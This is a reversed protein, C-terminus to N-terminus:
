YSFPVNLRAGPAPFFLREENISPAGDTAMNQNPITRHIVSPSLRTRDAQPVRPAEMERNPVPAAELRHEMDVSARGGPQLAGEALPAPRLRRKVPRPTKRQPKAQGQAQIAAASGGSAEQASAAYPGALLAGLLLLGLRRPIIM